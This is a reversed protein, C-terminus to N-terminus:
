FEGEIKWLHKVNLHFATDSCCLDGSFGWCQGHSAFTKYINDQTFAIAFMTLGETFVGGVETNSCFYQVELM